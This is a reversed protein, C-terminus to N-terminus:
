PYKAQNVAFQQTLQTGDHGFGNLGKGFVSFPHEPAGKRGQMGRATVKVLVHINMEKDDMAPKVIVMSPPLEKIERLGGEHFLPMIAHPTREPLGAFLFLQVERRLQSVFSIVQFAEVTKQIAVIPFVPDSM